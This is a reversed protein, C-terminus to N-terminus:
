IYEFSELKTLDINDAIENLRTQMGNEMQNTSVNEDWEYGLFDNLQEKGQLFIVAKKGDVLLNIYYNGYVDDNLGVYVIKNM